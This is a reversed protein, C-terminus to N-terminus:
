QSALANGVTAHNEMTCIASNHRDHQIIKLLTICHKTLRSLGSHIPVTPASASAATKRSGQVCIVKVRVAPRSPAAATAWTSEM